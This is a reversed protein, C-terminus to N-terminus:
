LKMNGQRAFLTNIKTQMAPSLQVVLEANYSGTPMPRIDPDETTNKAYVDTNVIQQATIAYSRSKAAPTEDQVSPDINTTVISLSNDSNFYIEFTRFQQPFDRLSSTEVQWFGAEPTAGRFPKITNFHRHGGLWLILNPYHHLEKILDPESVANSADNLWGLPAGPKEVGIPIHAAIIMLQDAAQGDALEKKLWDYRAHDLFGRWHFDVSGDDESQTDDLVIIKIPVTSKPLFSYCAFGSEADIESFGHGRPS